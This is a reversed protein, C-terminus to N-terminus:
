GGLLLTAVVGLGFFFLGQAFGVWFTRKGDKRLEERTNERIKEVLAEADSVDLLLTGQEEVARGAKELGGREPPERSVMFSEVVRRTSPAEGAAQEQEHKLRRISERLAQASVFGSLLSVALGSIALLVAEV